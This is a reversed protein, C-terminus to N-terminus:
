LTKVNISDQPANFNVFLTIKVNCYVHILPSILTCGHKYNLLLCIASVFFFFVKDCGIEMSWCMCDCVFIVYYMVLENSEKYIAHQLKHRSVVDRSPHVCYKAVHNVYGCTYM